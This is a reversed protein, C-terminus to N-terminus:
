SRVQMRTLGLYFPGYLVKVLERDTQSVPNRPCEDFYPALVQRMGFLLSSSADDVVTETSAARKAFAADCFYVTAPQGGRVLRGIVQWIGVLASWTLADREREPLTGYIMPLKLLGMWRHYASDRFHRGRDELPGVAIGGSAARDMAWRNVSHIAYNIDDPRPHPRVLFYAAGIAAVNDENLVNHGREIALLPAILIDAGTRALNAVEGRRLHTQGGWTSEFEEDDPVLHLIRGRWDERVQILCAHAIRAEEYSGVLM